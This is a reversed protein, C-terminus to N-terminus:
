QVGEARLDRCDRLLELARPVDMVSVRTPNPGFTEVLDKSEKLGLGTVERICRIEGIKDYTSGIRTIQIAVPVHTKLYEMFEGRMRDLRGHFRTDRTTKRVWEIFQDIQNMQNM